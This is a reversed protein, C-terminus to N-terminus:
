PCAGGGSSETVSIRGGAALNITRVNNQPRTVPLCVQVTGELLPVAGTGRAMGNPRFAITNGVGPIGGGAEVQLRTNLEGSQIIEDTGNEFAGSRNLDAYVMWGGWVGGAASCSTGNESRCLAVPLGRRIAETRATQLGAVVDNSGTALLSTNRIFEFSPVAAVVLIALVAIAIMLEILTFGSAREGGTRTTGQVTTGVILM